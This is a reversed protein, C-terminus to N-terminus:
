ELEASGKTLFAIAESTVQGLGHRGLAVQHAKLLAIVDRVRLDVTGAGARAAALAGLANGLIAASPWDLGGLFGLIVGADFSDGAGTSDRTKVALGPVSIQYENTALLSGDRGLKLAVAQVGARLLDRACADPEAHGTLLQAEVLNPMLIDVGPLLSRMEEVAEHALAMGPDLTITLGHRRAVQLAWLAVSRQPNSLLAYGSLHFLRAAALQQEDIQDFEIFVNAGRHGLITREGDSTVVVYMLGTM